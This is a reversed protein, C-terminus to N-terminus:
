IFPIGPINTNGNKDKYLGGGSAIRIAVGASVSAGAVKFPDVERGTVKGAEDYINKKFGKDLGAKMKDKFGTDDLSKFTKYTDRFGGGLNEGILYSLSNATNIKNKAFKEGQKYAEEGYIRKGNKLIGKQSANAAIKNIKDIQGQTMNAKVIKEGEKAAFSGYKGSMGKYVNKCVEIASKGMSGVEAM